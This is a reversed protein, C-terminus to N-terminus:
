LCEHILYSILFLYTMLYSYLIEIDTVRDTSGVDYIM